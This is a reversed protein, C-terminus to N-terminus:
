GTVESIESRDMSTTKPKDFGKIILWSAFVMEQIAIPMALLTSTSAFDTTANGFIGLLGYLLICGDGILGWTSLWRPVIESRYLIYNLAMSGLGFFVLSGFLISWERMAM